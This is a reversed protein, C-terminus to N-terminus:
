EFYSCLPGGISGDGVKHYSLNLCTEPALDFTATYDQQLHPLPGRESVHAIFERCKEKAMDDSVGRIAENLDSLDDLLEKDPYQLLLAIIKFISDKEDM